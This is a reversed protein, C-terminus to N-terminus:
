RKDKNILMMVAQFEMATMETYNNSDKREEYNAALAEAEQVSMEVLPEVDPFAEVNRSYIAQLVEVAVHKM